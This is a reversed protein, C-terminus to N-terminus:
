LAAEMKRRLGEPIEVPKFGEAAVSAVTVRAKVLLEDERRVEQLFVCRVKGLSELRPHGPFVQNEGGSLSGQQPLDGLM